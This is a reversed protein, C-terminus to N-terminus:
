KIKDKMMIKIRFLQDEHEPKDIFEVSVNEVDVNLLGDDYMKMLVRDLGYALLHYEGADLYQKLLEINYVSM